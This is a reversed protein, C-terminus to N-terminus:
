ENAVSLASEDEIKERKQSLRSAQCASRNTPEAYDGLKPSRREIPAVPLRIAPSLLAAGGWRRVMRRGYM